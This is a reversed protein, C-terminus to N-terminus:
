RRTYTNITLREDSHEGDGCRAARRWPSSGGRRRRRGRRSRVAARRANQGAERPAGARLGLYTLLCTTSPHVWPVIAPHPISAPHTSPLIRLPRIHPSSPRIRPHTPPHTPPHAPLGACDGTETDSAGGRAACRETRRTGGGGRVRAACAGHRHAGGRRPRRGATNTNPSLPRHPQSSTPCPGPLSASTCLHLPAATCRHLPASAARRSGCLRWSPVSGGCRRGCRSASLARQRRRRTRARAGSGSM